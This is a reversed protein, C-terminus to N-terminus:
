EPVSYEGDDNENIIGDRVGDAIIESVLDGNSGTRYESRTIDDLDFDHERTYWDRIVQSQEWVYEVAEAHSLIKTTM